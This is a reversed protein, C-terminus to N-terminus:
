DWSYKNTIYVKQMGVLYNLIWIPTGYDNYFVISPITGDEHDIVGKENCMEVSIM